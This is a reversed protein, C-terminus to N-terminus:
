KQLYVANNKIKKKQPAKGQFPTKYGMMYATFYMRQTDTINEYWEDFYKYYKKLVNYRFENWLYEKM